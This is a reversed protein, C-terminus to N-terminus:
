NHATVDKWNKLHQFTNECITNLLAQCTKQKQQLFGSRKGKVKFQSNGDVEISKRYFSPRDTTKTFYNMYTANKNM